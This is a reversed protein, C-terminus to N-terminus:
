AAADGGRKVAGHVLFNVADVRTMAQEALLQVARSEAESFLAVLVPAGTVWPRGSSQVHIVARQIVRQFGATPKAAVGGEVVLAILDSDLHSTLNTKLGAMDVACATMVAAADPDDLLALLLHELTAYEHKRQNALTISRHLTASLEASFGVREAASPSDATSSGAAAPNPPAAGPDASIAASLTNWDAAGFAKAILELSQSVTIKLGIAALAARITHAMAKADRYDRM